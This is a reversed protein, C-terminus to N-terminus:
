GNLWVPQSPWIISHENVFQTITPEFETVTLMITIQIKRSEHLQMSMGHSKVISFFYLYLHQQTQISQERYYFELCMHCYKSKNFCTTTPPLTLYKLEEFNTNNQCLHTTSFTNLRVEQFRINWINNRSSVQDLSRVIHISIISSTKVRTKYTKQLTFVLFLVLSLM